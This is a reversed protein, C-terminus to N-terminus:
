SNRRSDNAYANNDFIDKANVHGVYFDSKSHRGAAWTVIAQKRERRIRLDAFTLAAPHVCGSLDEWAFLKAM